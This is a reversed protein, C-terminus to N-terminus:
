EFEASNRCRSASMAVAIADAPIREIPSPEIVSLWSESRSAAPMSNISSGIPALGYRGCAESAHGYSM